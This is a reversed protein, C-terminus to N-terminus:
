RGRWAKVLVWLLALLIVLPLLYGTMVIIFNITSIFGSVAEKISEVIGLESSIREPGRINIDITALNVMNDLYKLRGTIREIEGRVRGLEREVGLVEEVTTTMNLIELLRTEQRHFNNLRADLDVYEETVDEGRTEINTIKGLTKLESVVPEFDGQPIRIIMHGMEAFDYSNISSRSIFGGSDLTIRTIIDMTDSVNAVKIGINSTTIVKREIDGDDVLNDTEQVVSKAGTASDMDYYFGGSKPSETPSMGQISVVESQAKQNSICGAAFVLALIIIIISLTKKMTAMDHKHIRHIDNRIM